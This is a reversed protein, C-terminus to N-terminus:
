GFMDATFDSYWGVSDEYNAKRTAPGEKKKSIFKTVAEINEKGAKYTAGVKV